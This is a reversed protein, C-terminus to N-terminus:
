IIQFVVGQKDTIKLLGKTRSFYIATGAASDIKTNVGNYLVGNITLTDTYNKDTMKISFSKNIPNGFSFTLNSNYADAPSIKMRIYGFWDKNNFDIFRLENIYIENAGCDPLYSGIVVEETSDRFLTVPINICQGNRIRYSLSDSITYPLYNRQVPRLYNTYRVLDGKGSCDLALFCSPLSTAIIGIIIFSLLIKSIIKM